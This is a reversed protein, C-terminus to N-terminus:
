MLITKRFSSDSSGIIFQRLKSDVSECPLLSVVRLALKSSTSFLILGLLHTNQGAICPRLGRMAKGPQPGIDYTLHANQLHASEYCPSQM